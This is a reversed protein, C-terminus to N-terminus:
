IPLEADSNGQLDLLVMLVMLVARTPDEEDHVQHALYAEMLSARHLMGDTSQDRYKELMEQLAGRMDESMPEPLDLSSLDLEDLIFDLFRDRNQM